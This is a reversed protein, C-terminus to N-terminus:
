RDFSVSFKIEKDKFDISHNLPLEIHEFEKLLFLDEIDCNGQFLKKDINTYVSELLINPISISDIHLLLEVLTLSDVSLYFEKVGHKIVFFSDFKRLQEIFPNYDM